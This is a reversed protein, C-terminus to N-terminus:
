SQPDVPPKLADKLVRRFRERRSHDVDRMRQWQFCLSADLNIPVRPNWIDRRLAMRSLIDVAPRHKRALPLPEGELGYRM